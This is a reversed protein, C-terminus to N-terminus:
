APCNNFNSLINFFCKGDFLIDQYHVFNKQVNDDLKDDWKERQEMFREGIDESQNLIRQFKKDEKTIEETEPTKDPEQQAIMESQEKNREEVIKQLEEDRKQFADLDKKLCKRTRGLSDTYEVWDEEPAYKSEDYEEESEDSSYRRNEEQYKQNFQVLSDSSGGGKKMMKEYYKAKAELIQKSRALQASDELEITSKKSEKPVKPLKEHVKAKSPVFDPIITTAKVNDAEAKKRLLEAKM